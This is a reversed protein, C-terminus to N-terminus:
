NGLRLPLFQLKNINADKESYIIYWIDWYILYLLNWFGGLIYDNIINNFPLYPGQLFKCSHDINISWCHPIM